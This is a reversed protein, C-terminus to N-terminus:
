ITHQNLVKLLESKSICYNFQTTIYKLQNEILKVERYNVLFLSGEGLDFKREESRVLNKYDIVLTNLIKYQEKYSDLQQLTGKIKNEITVKTSAIDFDIEKMKLKVLRLDAREKRLFLPFNITLAGKYNSATFSNIRRYNSSLVNYQLDIKPLLNNIKLRKDVLLSKKKLQLEKLKPHDEVKFGLVESISNTLVTDIITITQVDPVVSDTLELPIDNEFWLYNAVELKSKVYSLKAKEIDLLRNKYNISAELTDIAPKDGSYFSKKVNELRVKANTLYDRYVLQTQYNKLWYFYTNTANFLIENVVIKQKEVSQKNYLKAQKLFAMRQNTLLGKALSISVGASYLGEKPTKFEPNLYIGENSEYNAKFEVGYWTPIKFTTNLKDYYETGKFNKRDYDVELKPDFAGRAKLLKVEGNTSILQAQKLIPHFKKVYGLYEELSLM